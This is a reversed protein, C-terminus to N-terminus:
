GKKIEAEAVVAQYPKLTVEGKEHDLDDYNNILMSEKLEIGKPIKFSVEDKSFNLLVLLKDEDLVRTYVYIKTHKPALLQYRGYTLVLKEKRLKTMKRFYHLVSNADKEQAEVNIYKYNPNVKLWPKGTTFGANEDANWQMPTRSNDRGMIKQAEIFAKEDGGKSRLVEFRSRTEIDNYDEIKDFKINTMGIEDGNYIFPTARMTLLFTLLMKESVERFEDSDDGWRTVMRPQDHSTLYITGWGKQEFIEDWKSHVKKFDTLKYGQPDPMKWQGPLLGVGVGEFHTLMDLEHNDENVFDLARDITVGAGEAITVVDYKSIAARNMEKLYEHLKPGQGYYNAWEGYKKTIVKEPIVPFSQDKSIYGMADMRFGDVGKEFWFRMMSYIEERVKPNDWNLDPQKISFIHYYYSDTQEDYKWAEGKNDFFSERFPPEGKEAPWWIYYDRYPNDRSKRAEIFWEHEDSTHNVVLDLILRIKREHLGELLEDFDQMTGAEKMINMYDSIDYGNDDNPSSYIPTLWVMDIGLSKIYDLKSIIGRLDGIGDGNSDKFSRPYIQYVIAEKWWKRKIDTARM